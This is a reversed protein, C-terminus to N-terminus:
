SFDQRETRGPWVFPSALDSQCSSVINADPFYCIEDRWGGAFDSPRRAASEEMHFM